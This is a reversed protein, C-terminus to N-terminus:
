IGALVKATEEAVFAVAHQSTDYRPLVRSRKLALIRRAIATHDETDVVADSCCRELEPIGKPVLIPTGVLLSELSGRPMSDVRSLNLDAIAEAALALSTAHDVIGLYRLIGEREASDHHPRRDRDKGVVVLRISPDKQRALRVAEISDDIGKLFVIGSSSFVYGQSELGFRALISARWAEDPPVVEAPIPVLRVKPSLQKDVDLHQRVNESCAIVADFPYLVSFKNRPLRPDRVDAIWRVHSLTASWRCLQASVGPHYLLSSHFLVVDIKQSHILWPVGLLQVNQVFYNWYSGITKLSAGARFPYIRRFEISGSRLTERKPQGPFEETAVVVKSCWHDKVLGHALLTTYIGGGGPAPPLLPTVILLRM